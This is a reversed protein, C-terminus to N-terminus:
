KPEVAPKAYEEIQEEIKSKDGTIVLTMKEPRIYKKTLDSVQQPTVSHVSKVYNALYDDKLGHLKLFSFQGIIGGRSSNQLVFNGALYNKIGKLEAETPPESQLRTIEGFIEKLSPGTVTTTVDAIEAWYADRYRTSITSFPSYTYGKQERINSTIRSGFSGGLLANTVLFPVFDAEYPNVVPLGLYITSQPAGPRNILHFAKKMSPKPISIYPESGKNWGEFGSRIAKEMVKSDFVGAVYISTRQGGFNKRYFDKVNQISFGQIMETTPFYRGYPHDPYLIKYFQEATLQRPQSQQVTLQRARDNKIRALESEPFLPNRIIDALLAILNPGFESLVDGSITSQDPGVGINVSGGMGAAEQAVQEATRSTTGEKMLDGVFDALWVENAAENLNGARVVVSVTVKPLSGYPVMTVSIGNALAFTQKAPITFDKPTSGEPPLQKQAHLAQVFTVVLFALIVLQIKKMTM